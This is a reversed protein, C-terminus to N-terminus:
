RGHAVLQASREVRNQAKGVQKGILTVARQVIALLSVDVVYMSASRVQELQDGVDQVKGLNFRASHLNDTFIHVDCGRKTFHEAGELRQRVLFGLAQSLLNLGTQINAGVCSSELLDEHIQDAIRDLESGFRASDFQNRTLHPALDLQFHAVIARSNGGFFLPPDEFREIAQRLCAAGRFTGAQSKGDSRAEDFQVSAFQLNLALGALASAEMKGQGEKGDSRILGGLRGYRCGSGAPSRPNEDDFVVRRRPLKDLRLECRRTILSQSTVLRFAGRFHRSFVLRIGDSQVKEHLRDVPQLNQQM